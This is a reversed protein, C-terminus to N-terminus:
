IFHFRLRKYLLETFCPSSLIVHWFTRFASFVSLSYLLPFVTRLCPFARFKIHCNILTGNTVLPSIILLFLGLQSTKGNLQFAEERRCGAIEDKELYNRPFKAKLILACEYLGSFSWYGLSLVRMCSKKSHSIKDSKLNGLTSDEASHELFLRQNMETGKYM